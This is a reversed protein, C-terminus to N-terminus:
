VKLNIIIIAVAASFSAFLRLRPDIPLAVSSLFLNNNVKPAKITNRNPVKKGIGPILGTEKCCNKSCCDDPIKPIKSVKEPPANPLIPINARPTIGYIDADIIIVNICDLMGCKFANFSCPELPLLCIM